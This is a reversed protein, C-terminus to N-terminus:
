AAPTNGERGTARDAAARRQEPREAAFYEPFFAENVGMERIRRKMWEAPPLETGAVVAPSLGDHSAIYEAQLGQLTRDKVERRRAQADRYGDFFQRRSQEARLDSVVNEVSARSASELRAVRRDREALLKRDHLFIAAVLALLAAAVLWPTLTASIKLSAVALAALILGALGYVTKAAAWLRRADDRM